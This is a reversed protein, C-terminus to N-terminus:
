KNSHNNKVDSQPEEADIVPEVEEHHSKQGIEEEITQSISKTFNAVMDLGTQEVTKEINNTIDKSAFGFLKLLWM